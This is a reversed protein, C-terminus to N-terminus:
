EENPRPLVDKRNISKSMIKMYYTTIYQKDRLTHLYWLPLWFGDIKFCVVCHCFSFPWFSLCHDVSCVYLFLYRTVRVGSFDPPSIMHEPLTLLEKEVLSVRRTLITVFETTHWSHPFSQSTNIFIDTIM